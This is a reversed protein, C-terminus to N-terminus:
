FKAAPMSSGVNAINRTNATLNHDYNNATTNLGGAITELVNNLKTADSQWQATDINLQNIDTGAAGDAILSNVTNIMATIQGQIQTNTNLCYTGAQRLSDTSVVGFLPNPM